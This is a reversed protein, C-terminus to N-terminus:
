LNEKIWNKFERDPLNVGTEMDYLAVIRQVDSATYVKPKSSHITIVNNSDVKIKTSLTLRHYEDSTYNSPELNIAKDEDYFDEYEILVEDIGGVQCYKEIFAQPIGPLYKTEFYNVEEGDDGIDFGTEKGKSKLSRDTTAVIKKYDLRKSWYERDSTISQRIANTDDIYWDGERIEEDTTSYLHQNTYGDTALVTDKYYYLVNGGNHKLISTKDETPLMVVKSKKDVM